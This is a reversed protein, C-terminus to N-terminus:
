RLQGKCFFVNMCTGAGVTKRKVTGKCFFVNICTGDSSSIKLSNRNFSSTFFGILLIVRYVTGKFCKCSTICHLHGASRISYRFRIGRCMTGKFSSTFNRDLHGESGFWQLISIKVTWKIQCANNPLLVMLNMRIPVYMASKLIANM